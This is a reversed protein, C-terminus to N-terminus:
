YPKVRGSQISLKNKATRLAIAPQSEKICIEIFGSSHNRASVAIANLKPYGALKNKVM